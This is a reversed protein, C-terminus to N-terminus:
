PPQAVALPPVPNEKARVSDREVQAVDEPLEADGGPDLERADGGLLFGPLRRDALCTAAGRRAKHCALRITPLYRSGGMVTDTGNPMRPRETGLPLWGVDIKGVAAATPMGNM